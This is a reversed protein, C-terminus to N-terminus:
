STPLGAECTLKELFGKAALYNNPTYQRINDKLDAIMNQTIEAAKQYSEYSLAGYKAREYFLEQLDDCQQQYAPARLAVPWQLKGTVPDLETPELRQPKMAAHSRLWEQNYQRIKASEAALQDQRVRRTYYYAEVYNKWNKIQQKAAQSLNVAAASTNLNYEGQARVVDGLGYLYSGAVTGGGGGYWGWGSYSSPPPPIVRGGNSTAM